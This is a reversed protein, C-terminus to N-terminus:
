HPAYPPDCWPDNNPDCTLRPFGGNWIQIDDVWQYIPLRGGSYLLSPLIRNIQLPPDSAGKNAGFHDAIVTGNIALWFRGDANASRHWFVEVKNWSGDDPVPVATNTEVWYNVLAFSGGASNDAVVVWFPAPDPNSGICPPVQHIIMEPHCGTLVYAEVRYDGDNGPNGDGPANTGTKFSFFSRWTGGDPYVGPAPDLGIMNGIMGPQFRIWYSIYLDGEEDAPTLQYSQQTSGNGIPNQGNSGATIQSYLALNTPNGTHGQVTVIQNFVYNSMTEAAVGPVDAILQFVGGHGYAYQTGWIQPPWTFGTSSDTGAIGQWCGTPGSWCDRPADLATSSEYGSRFALTGLQSQAAFPLGATLVIAVAAFRAIPRKRNRNRVVQFSLTHRHRVSKTAGGLRLKM